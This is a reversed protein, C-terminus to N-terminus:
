CTPLSRASSATRQWCPRTPRYDKEVVIRAARLRPEFLLLVSDLLACVNVQTPATQPRYFQLANTAIQSVRSLQHQAAIVYDRLADTDPQTEALYLLNTVAELPNNIEHAISSTLRGVLALKEQKRLAEEARKRGTIDVTLVAFGAVSGDADRCPIFNAEICRIGNLTKIENEFSVREGQLARIRFEITKEYQAHGIVDRVHQGVVKEAPVGFWEEYSRNARRIILHRDVYSVLAPIADILVRLDSESRRLAEAARKRETVDVCAGTIYTPVGDRDCYAKGRDYLWHITGDPWLVRYEMEFDLGLRLCQECRAVVEGRDEPHVRALFQVLSKVTEGKRLGFLQNLEEDWELENTRMDWRFTGTRSATLAAQLREDRDRRRAEEQKRATINMLM